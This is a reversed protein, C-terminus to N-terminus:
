PQFWRWCQREWRDKAKGEDVTQWVLNAITDPGGCALPIVHDRVFGVCAGTTKGTSPCPFERQFAAPLNRDRANADNMWMFLLGCMLAWWIPFMDSLSSEKRAIALRRPDDGGQIVLALWGM